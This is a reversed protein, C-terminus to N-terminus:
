EPSWFLTALEPVNEIVALTLSIICIATAFKPGAVLTVSEPHETEGVVIVALPVGWLKWAEEPHEGIVTM